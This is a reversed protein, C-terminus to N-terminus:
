AIAVDDVFTEVATGGYKQSLNQFGGNIMRNIRTSNCRREYAETSLNLQAIRRQFQNKVAQLKEPTARKKDTLSRGTVSRTRYAEPNNKYVAELALRIYTCDKNETKEVLALNSLDAKNFYSIQLYLLLFILYKQDILSFNM